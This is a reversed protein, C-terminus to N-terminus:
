MGGGFDRMAVLSMGPRPGNEPPEKRSRMQQEVQQRYLFALIGAVASYLEIPISQGPEVLKYLSRALPPNEVIPVNAWRAEERIKAAHRDRGKALVTPAQMTEVNFELAVAYHTPNTIVVSAKSVDAKMRQKRMARQIQRIKGKILPNGMSDRMEERIEQKGMKLRDNWSKWETAYDLGAWALLIWGADLLLGYITTLTGPLRGLSMGPISLVSKQLGVWGLCLIVGAPILSKALGTASRLSFLNQLNSIPNVKAFNPQILNARIQLGGSQVIGVILACGFSAVLPM